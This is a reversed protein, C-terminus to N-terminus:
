DLGILLLGVLSRFGGDLWCATKRLIARWVHSNSGRRPDSGLKEPKFPLVPMKAASCLELSGFRGLSNYPNCNTSQHIPMRKDSQSNPAYLTKPPKMHPHRETLSGRKKTKTKTKFSLGFLWRAKKPRDAQRLFVLRGHQDTSDSHLKRGQVTRTKDTM